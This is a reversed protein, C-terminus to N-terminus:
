RGRLMEKLLARVKATPSTEALNRLRALPDAPQYTPPYSPQRATLFDVPAGAPSGSSPGAVAPARGGTPPSQPLGALSMTEVTKKRDGYPQDLPILTM